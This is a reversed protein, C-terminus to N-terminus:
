FWEKRRIEYTEQFQEDSRTMYIIAEIFAIVGVIMTPLFFVIWGLLTCALMILGAKNFGLYFKHVGFTGFFLALLGAIFKNKDGHVAVHPTGPDPYVEVAADGRAQFDVLAGARAIQGSGLLDAERFAYRRGDAGTIVGDGSQADIHLIQGKM